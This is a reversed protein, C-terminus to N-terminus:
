SKWLCVFEEKLHELPDKCTVLKWQCIKWEPLCYDNIKNNFHDQEGWIARAFDIDFVLQYYQNTIIYNKDIKIHILAANTYGKDKAHQLLRKLFQIDEQM